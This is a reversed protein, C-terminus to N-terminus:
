TKLILEILYVIEAIALMVNIGFHFYSKDRFAKVADSIFWAGLLLYALHIIANVIVSVM